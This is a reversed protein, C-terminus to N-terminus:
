LGDVYASLKEKIIVIEERVKKYYAVKGLYLFRYSFIMNRFNDDMLFDGRVARGNYFRVNAIYFPKIFDRVHEDTLVEYENSSGYTQEYLEVIQNKLQFDEILELKGSTKLSEYTSIQPTFAPNYQITLIYEALTTDNLKSAAFVSVDSLAILAKSVRENWSALTDLANIDRQLNNIMSELFKREQIKNGKDEKYGELYFAISIGLIVVILNAIHDLWNIKKM